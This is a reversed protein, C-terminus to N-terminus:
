IQMLFGLLEDATQIIRASAQYAREFRILNAVEEDISVGSIAGRRNELEAAIIEAQALGRRTSQIESGLRGSLSDFFDGLSATNGTPTGPADGTAYFATNALEVALMARANRGDSAAAGAGSVSVTGAAVHRPNAVIGTNLGIVTATGAVASLDVGATTAAQSSDVFLRRATNDDLGFGVLHVDNVRRALTFAFEDLDERYSTVTTDRLDVAAGMQGASIGATIPGSLTGGINMFVDSKTPDSTSPQTSLVAAMEEDVLTFGGAVFVAIQGNPKEFTTFDIKDALEKLLQDRSDRLASADVDTGAEKSFIQVNLRAIGSAIDNVETSARTLVDDADIQMQSLRSDANRILDVLTQANQVLAERATSNGADNALDNLSGFFSSLASNIGTGGLEEFIGEVRALGAERETDFALGQLENRLQADVTADVIRQVTSVEVGGGTPFGDPLFSSAVSRFVARQRTYGPTNVNAINNSSTQIAREQSLLGMRGIGLTGYISM